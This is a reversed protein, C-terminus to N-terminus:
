RHDARASACCGCRAFGDAPGEFIPHWSSLSRSSRRDEIARHRLDACTARPTRRETSKERAGDDVPPPHALEDRLDARMRVEPM